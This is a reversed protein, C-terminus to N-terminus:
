HYEVENYENCNPCQFIIDVSIEGQAVNHVLLTGCNGCIYQLNGTSNGKLLPENMNGNIDSKKRYVRRSGRTTRPIIRCKIEVMDLKDAIGKYHMVIKGNSNNAV